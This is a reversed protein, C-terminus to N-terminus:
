YVLIKDNSKKFFPKLVGKDEFLNDTSEMVVYDKKPFRLLSFSIGKIGNSLNFEKILM